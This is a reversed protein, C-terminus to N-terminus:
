REVMERGILTTTMILSNVVVVIAISQIKDSISFIKCIIIVVVASSGMAVLSLIFVVLFLLILATTEKRRHSMM